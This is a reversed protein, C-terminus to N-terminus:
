KVTQVDSPEYGAKRIIDKLEKDDVPTMMHIDATKKGLDVKAYYGEKSNFANEVRAACNKCTMGGVHVTKEYPYSSIDKNQPKIKKVTDGGAGCCGSSLKKMYSKVAFIVVVILIIIIVATAPTM